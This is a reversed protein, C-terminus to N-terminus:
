KMFAVFNNGMRPRGWLHMTDSLQTRFHKPILKKLLVVLTEGAGPLTTPRDLYASVDEVARRLDPYPVKGKNGLKQLDNVIQKLQKEQGGYREELRTIRQGLDSVTNHM